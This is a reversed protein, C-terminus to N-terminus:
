LGTLGSSGAVLASASRILCNPHSPAIATVVSQTSTLPCRRRTAAMALAPAQGRASASVIAAGSRDRQALEIALARAITTTGCRQGLGIVAIVPRHGPEPELTRPRPPAPDLLWREARVAVASVFGGRRAAPLATM